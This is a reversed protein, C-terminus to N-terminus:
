FRTRTMNHAEEGDFRRVSKSGQRQDKPAERKSFQPMEPPPGKASPKGGRSPVQPLRETIKFHPWSNIFSNRCWLESWHRFARAYASVRPYYSLNVLRSVSWQCVPLYTPLCASLCASQFSLSAYVLMLLHVSIYVLLSVSFVYRCVSSSLSKFPLFYRPVDDM